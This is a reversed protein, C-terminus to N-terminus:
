RCTLHQVGCSQVYILSHCYWRIFNINIHETIFLTM